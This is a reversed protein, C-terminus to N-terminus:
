KTEMGIWERNKRWVQCRPCKEPGPPPIKTLWTKNCNPNVCTIQTWQLTTEQM